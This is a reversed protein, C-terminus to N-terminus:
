VFLWVFCFVYCGYNNFLYNYIGLYFGFFADKKFNRFKNLYISNCYGCMM